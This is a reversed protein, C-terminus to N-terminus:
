EVHTTTYCSLEVEANNIDTFTFFEFDPNEESWDIKGLYKVYDSKSAERAKQHYDNLSHNILNGGDEYYGAQRAEPTIAVVSFKGNVLSPFIEPSNKAMKKLWQIHDFAEQIFSVTGYKM